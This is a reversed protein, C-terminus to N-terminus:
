QADGSAYLSRAVARSGETLVTGTRMVYVCDAIELARKINQDVLRRRSPRMSLTSFAKPM